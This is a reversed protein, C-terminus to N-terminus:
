DGNNTVGSGNGIRALRVNIKSVDSRLEDIAPEQYEKASLTAKIEGLERSVRFAFPIAASVVAAVGLELVLLIIQLSDLSAIDKM